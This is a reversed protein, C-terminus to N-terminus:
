PKYYIRLNDFSIETKGTGSRFYIYRIHQIAKGDVTFSAAVTKWADTQGMVVPSLVNTQTGACVLEVYASEGKFDFVVTYTGKKGWDSANPDEPKNPSLQVFPVASSSGSELVAAHDVIAKRTYGGSRLDTNNEYKADSYLPYKMSDTTYDAKIPEWTGSRDAYADFGFGLLLTGYEESDSFETLKEKKPEASTDSSDVADDASVTNEREKETEGYKVYLKINDFAITDGVESAYMYIYRIYTRESGDLTLTFRATTWEDSKGRATETTLDGGSGACLFATYTGQGKFDYELTYVGPKSWDTNQPVNPSLLVCAKATDTGTLYITGDKVGRTKYGQSRLTTDSEYTSQTYLNYTTDPRKYDPSITGFAGVSDPLTSFDYGLILLGNENETEFDTANLTAETSQTAQTKDADYGFRMYDLSFSGLANFPDFRLATISGSWAACKSLDLRYSVFEGGSSAATLPISVSKSESWSADTATQFFLQIRNNAGNPTFDYRYRIDVYNYFAANLPTSFTRTMVPDTSQTSVGSLCGDTGVSLSINYSTWGFTYGPVNFEFADSALKEAEITEILTLQETTVYAAGDKETYTCGLAECLRAFPVLPLGDDEALTYGLSIEKGDSSYKDSGVTFSVTHGYAYLTLTETEYDWTEYAGLRKELVKTPDYAFLTEGAASVGYARIGTDTGNIYLATREDRAAENKGLFRISKVTFPKDPTDGVDLRLSTMSGIHTSKNLYLLYTETQDTVSQASVIRDYTWATDASGKWFLQIRDGKPVSATIEVAFVDTLDISGVNNMFVIPDNTVAVGGIGNEDVKFGSVGTAYSTIKQLDLSSLVPYESKPFESLFELSELRFRLNPATVPDIRIAELRGNWKEKDLVYTYETLDDSTSFISIVRSGSWGSQGSLRYFIQLEEGFPIEATLRLASIDDLSVANFPTIFLYTDNNSSLGSLGNEGFILDGTYGSGTTEKCDGFNVTRHVYYNTQKELEELDSYAKDRLLRLYQPYMRGIRSKQRDTLVTNIAENKAEDTCLERIADIYAFGGINTSPNMSTGEGFENWTGLMLFNKQWDETAYTPIYEDLMWKVCSKYDNAEFLPYRKGYWAPSNQGVSPSPIYYVSKETTTQVANALTKYRMYASTYCDHGLGYAFTAEFGMREAESKSCQCAIPLIGDYGLKKAEEDLTELIHAWLADDNLARPGYASFVLRNDITMYRSDKFYNEVIYPLFVTDWQEASTPRSSNTVEWLLCYKMRDSYKANMYGDHLAAVEWADYPKLVGDTLKPFWCYAQFDIGHEVMYKIEWDAAEPNGDDYYGMVPEDFPTIPKWSGHDGERWISCVEIGVTYKEEGAPKIPEPVYDDYEYTRFVKFNDFKAKTEGRNAVSLGDVSTTKAAFAVTDVARGNVKVLATMTDTDLEFRLRYWLGDYYGDYVNKGNVFMSEGDTEFVLVEKAGSLLTYELKTERDLWVETEAVVKGSTPVFSLRGTGNPEVYLVGSKCALGDGTFAHPAEGDYIFNEFVSYNVQTDLNNVSLVATSEETTAMRFNYIDSREGSTALPFTGVSEFNFCVTGENKELDIVFRLNYAGLRVACIPTYAGDSGLIRWFGDEAQMRFVSEGNENQFEFYAGDMSDIFRVYADTVLRGTTIKNYHRILATPYETSIDRLEGSEIDSATSPLGGRNDLTWGGTQFDYTTYLFSRTHELEYAEDHSLPVLEKQLRKEPLMARGLAASMEARTITDEPRFNGYEDSGMLIGARYLVILEDHYAQAESVDPIESVDNRVELYGEPIARALMSAMEHRVAPREFDDFTELENTNWLGNKEAYVAYKRYWAGDSDPITQGGYSAHVRSAVTLAEALTVTGNPSFTDEKVGNMLGLELVNKVDEAYWASEEVDSFSMDDKGITEVGWVSTAFLATCFLCVLMRKIPLKM